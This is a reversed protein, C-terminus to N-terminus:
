PPRYPKPIWLKEMAKAGFDRINYVRAGELNDPKTKNIPKATADNMFGLGFTAAVAPVSVKGLWERRSIDTNVEKKEKASSFLQTLGQYGKKFNRGIM